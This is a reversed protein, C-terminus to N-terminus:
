GLQRVQKISEQCDRIFELLRRRDLLRPLRDEGSTHACANRVSDAKGFVGEALKRAEGELRGSKLIMSSKDCFMTAELLDRLPLPDLSANPHCFKFANVARERRSDSLLGWSRAADALCAQLAAHELELVLAFLCLRGPLKFFSDGHLTGTISSGDLVFYFHPDTSQGFIEAAKFYSTEAAILGDPRVPELVDHLSEPEGDVAFSDIAAWGLLVAGDHVLSIRSTPEYEGDMAASVLVDSLQEADIDETLHPGLPNQLDRVTVLAAMQMFTTGGPRSAGSAYPPGQSNERNSM